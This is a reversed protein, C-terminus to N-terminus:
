VLESEFTYCLNSAWTATQLADGGSPVALGSKAGSIGQLRCALLDSELFRMPILSDPSGTTQKSCTRISTKVPIGRRNRCVKGQAFQELPCSTVLGHIPHM